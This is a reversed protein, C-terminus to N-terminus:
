KFFDEKDSWGMAENTFPDDRGQLGDIGSEVGGACVGCVDCVGECSKVIGHNNCFCRHFNFIFLTELMELFTTGAM